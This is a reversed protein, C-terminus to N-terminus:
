LLLNELEFAVQIKENEVKLPSGLYFHDLFRM